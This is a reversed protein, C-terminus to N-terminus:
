PKTILTFIIKKAPRAKHISVFPMEERDFSLYKRTDLSLTHIEDTVIADPGHNIEHMMLRENLEAACISNVVHVKLLQHLSIRHSNQLEIPVTAQILSM